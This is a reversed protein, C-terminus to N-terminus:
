WGVNGPGRQIAFTGGSLDIIGGKGPATVTVVSLSVGGQAGARVQVGYQGPSAIRVNSMSSSAIKTGDGQSQFDLGFYTPEQIDIDSVVVGDVDIGTSFIKFAGHQQNFSYGGARVLTNRAISTTGSFPNMPPYPGGVQVGPFTLTDACVNDEVRESTGGYLAFCTARWPLQVSDHHLVNNADAPGPQTYSWAAVSDDGTYRFHTNYVESNRTGNCLNVGDAFLDRFRCSSIVLGDTVGGDGGAPPSNSGVWFGVKKHEVWIRDLSSGTGASGGFANEPSGDDRTTTEGLVAFDAFRCDNGNCVFGAWKGHLVSYWMGAGQVTVGAVEIGPTGQVQTPLDFTGKPIWVGHGQTKARNVCSQIQQGDDKGDDPTAGCDQVLDLYGAAPKPLPSAVQELDVLDIVYYAATNAADKQLRVKAGAAIDGTLTHVEDYFHFAGGVHPDHSPLNPGSNQWSQVDYLWSYRSTVALARRLAGDVYLDLTADIGGGDPADPISYRVVISNSARLATIEVYDGTNELRVARRGSAEAQMDGLATSAPLVMANTSGDEAEYEDWPVAAGRPPVAADGGGDADASGYGAGDGVAPDINADGPDFAVSAQGESADPAGDHTMADTGNAPAPAAQGCAPLTLVVLLWGRPSVRDVGM